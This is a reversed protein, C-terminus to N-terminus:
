SIKTTDRPYFLNITWEFAIRLKKRWSIFKFLYVTRWLWWAFRGQLGVGFIQGVAQWQGISVLLGQERYMFKKLPQNKLISEINRVVVESQRVAVQAFMPLPKDDTKEKFAAVDGLIFVDSLGKARLHEDTLIRGSKDIEFGGKIVPLQSKVGATWMVTWSKITRSNELLVETERVEKVKAQKMVEVGKKSLTKEAWYHMNEPFASLIQDSGSLLVVRIDRNKCFTRRYYFALTGFTFEAIEGALEVGTAGGGVVVFTLLEKRLNEDSTLAAKEFADIIRSRIIVSDRLTKLPLGYKEAGPIDYFNTEAGTTLVLIDYSLEQGNAFVIQKEVDVLSVSSQYFKIKDKRFIERIPEAVSVPSLGGTAVEHLLPTFLFYNQPSILIIEARECNALRRLGGAVYVGGFGGGVIIIKKKKNEKNM